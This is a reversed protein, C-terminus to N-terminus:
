GPPTSRASFRWPKHPVTPNEQQSPLASAPGDYSRSTECADGRLMILAIQVPESAIRSLLTPSARGRQEPHSCTERLHRSVCPSWSHCCSSTPVSAPPALSPIARDPSFRQHMHPHPTRCCVIHLRAGM